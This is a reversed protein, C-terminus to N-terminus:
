SKFEFEPDIEYKEEILNWQPSSDVKIVLRGTAPEYEESHGRSNSSIDTAGLHGRALLSIAEPSFADNSHVSVAFTSESLRIRLTVTVHGVIIYSNLGDDDSQQIVPRSKVNEVLLLAISMLFESVLAASRLYESRGKGTIKVDM